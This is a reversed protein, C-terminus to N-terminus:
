QGPPTVSPQAQAAQAPPDPMTSAAELTVGNAQNARLVPQAAPLPIRLLIREREIWRDLERSYAAFTAADAASELGAVAQKRAKQCDRLARLEYDSRFYLM